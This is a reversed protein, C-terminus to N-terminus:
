IFYLNPYRGVHSILLYFDGFNEPIPHLKRQFARFAFCTIFTKCSKQQFVKKKRWTNMSKNGFIRKAFNGLNPSSRKEKSSLWTIKLQWSNNQEFATRFFDSSVLKWNRNKGICIKLIGCFMQSCIRWMKM